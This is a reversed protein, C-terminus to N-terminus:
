FEVTIKKKVTSNESDNNETNNETNNGTNNETYNGSKDTVKKEKKKLRLIHKICCCKGKNECSFKLYENDSVEDVFNYYLLRHLAQKKGNYFFNVFSTSNKIETIYGDWLSCEEVFISKNLYSSIRKLDSLALKRDNSLNKRQNKILEQFLLNKNM